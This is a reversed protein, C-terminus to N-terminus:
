QYEMSPLPVVIMVGASVHVQQRRCPHRADVIGASGSRAHGKMGIRLTGGALHPQVLIVETLGPALNGHM